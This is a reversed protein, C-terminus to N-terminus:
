ITHAWQLLHQRMEANRPVEIEIDLEFPHSILLAHYRGEKLMQEVYVHLDHTAAPVEDAQLLSLERAVADDM